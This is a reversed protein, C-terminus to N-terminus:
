KFFREIMRMMMKNKLKTKEIKGEPNIAIEMESKGKEIMFEYLMGEQTESIEAEEIKYGPYASLLSSKINQPIDKVSIQHETEKWTGDERFNASYKTNNMKFEAEWETANEKDWTVKTATPFKKTFAEKVKQPLPDSSTFAFMVCVLFTGLIIKLTKM